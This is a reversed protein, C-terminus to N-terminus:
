MYCKFSGARFFTKVILDIYITFVFSVKQMIMPAAGNHIICKIAVGLSVLPWGALMIGRGVSM